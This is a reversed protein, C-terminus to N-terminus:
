KQYVEAIQSENGNQIGLTEDTQLESEEGQDLDTSPESVYATIDNIIDYLTVKDFIGLYM